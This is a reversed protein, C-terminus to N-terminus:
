QWTRFFVHDGIKLYEASLGQSKYAPETMFFLHPFLIKEGDVKLYVKKGEKYNAFRKLVTAAAKRTSASITEPARMRKSLSGDRAPTFQGKEYIVERLTTAQDLPSYLRNMIVVGVALKGTQPQNDAECCIISALLTEDDAAPDTYYTPEVAVKAKPIKSTDNKLTGKGDADFEWTNEGVTITTNVAKKYTKLDFYYTVSDVEQLGKLAKGNAGLYCDDQWANTLRYGKTGLYFRGKWQNKYMAGDSGLYYYKRDIQVWRDTQLHGTTLDFYYSKGNLNRKGTLMIGRQNFGYTAGGIEYLGGTLLAGTEGAYFKKKHYTVWGNKVLKGSTSKAFYYWQDGEHLWGIRRVGNADVYYDSGIWRSKVLTGNKYYSYTGDTNKKWEAQANVTMCCFMMLFLVGALWFKQRSRYKPFM